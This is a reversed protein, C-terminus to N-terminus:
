QIKGYNEGQTFGEYGKAELQVALEPGGSKVLKGDMLVHVYDPKVYNLLRQYHTIVLMGRSENRLRNIGESVITLADIDLGSDTEDLIAVEPELLAMQLIELRKKEGGSFGDNVYRGVVSDQMDLLKLKEKLRTRFEKIPVEGGRVAKMSARLFNGVSVGPIAVPYQFALFLRKKAREEPKLAAINEGRYLIEGETVQYRPHGMITYSLTTKGSGNRGMLAHVKGQYITLDLGKLIEKGEVCVHLNKIEFLPILKEKGNGQKM